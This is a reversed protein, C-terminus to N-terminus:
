NNTNLKETNSETKRNTNCFLRQKMDPFLKETMHFKRSWFGIHNSVFFRANQSENLRYNKLTNRFDQNEGGRAIEDSWDFKKIDKQLLNSQFRLTQM